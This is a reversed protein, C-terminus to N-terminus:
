SRYKNWKATRKFGLKLRELLKKNNETSLTVVPVHLKTDTIQFELGPQAVLAPPNNNNRAVRVTMGVLACSKSWTLIFKTEFNIFTINLTRWLNSLHKLPVVIKTENKGVKNADYDTKGVGLNYTNGTINTKCKMSKSDFSLPNIGCFVQKKYNKSYALLNCMTM